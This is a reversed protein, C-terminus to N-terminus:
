VNNNNKFDKMKNIHTLSYFISIASLCWLVLAYIVHSSGVKICEINSRFLIIAGVIFWAIGFLIAIINVVILAITVKKIAYEFLILALLVIIIITVAITSIGLGLLYRAVDLDMKDVYDCPGPKLIGLVISTIGLPLLCVALCLLIAINITKKSKTM